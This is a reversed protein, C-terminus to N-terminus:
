KIDTKKTHTLSHTHTHEMPCPLKYGQVKMSQASGRQVVRTENAYIISGGRCPGGDAVNMYNTEVLLDARGNRNHNTKHISHIIM